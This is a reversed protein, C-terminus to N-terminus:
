FKAHQTFNEASVMKFYKIQNELFVPKSMEHLNDGNSVIQMFHWIKNEPFILVIDDSKGDTSNAWLTSVTLLPQLMCSLVKIISLYVPLSLDSQANVTQDPGENLISVISYIPFLFGQGFWRSPLSTRTKVM